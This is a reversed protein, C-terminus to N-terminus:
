TFNNEQFPSDEIFPLFIFSYTVLVSKNSIKYKGNFSHLTLSFNKKSTDTVPEQSDACTSAIFCPKALLKAESSSVKLFIKFPAPSKVLSALFTSLFFGPLCL